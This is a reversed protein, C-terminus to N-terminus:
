QSPLISGLYADVARKGQTLLQMESKLAQRAEQGLAITEQDLEIIKRLMGAISALSLPMAPHQFLKEIVISRRSELESLQEWDQHGAEVQMAATLDLAQNAYEEPTLLDVVILKKNIM